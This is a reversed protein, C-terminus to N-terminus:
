LCRKSFKNRGGEKAKYLEDDAIKYLDDFDYSNNAKKSFDVCVLGLSITIVSSASSSKHEIQLNQIDKRVDETILEASECGNTSFVIGFEEGGLRFAFDESRKMSKELTAGIATLVSDGEQHGYTDNYQKFFDVDLMVFSLFSSQRVARKIETEFVDNFHRRNYLGTLQDTISLEEIRKKDTIDHRISTYGVVNGNLDYKSSIISDVWYYNGDKKLNKIEGSWTGEKVIIEWMKIYFDDRMDPHKLINHKKGILEEKSYGSINCFAESAETITGSLDTSSTIVYKDIIDIKQELERQLFYISIHAKIRVLIEETDFPKTIYDVAGLKFGNVKDVSEGKASLFIVPIDKLLEDEKLIRCVEYGDMGPMMIDLLILDPRKKEISKLAMEGSISTRVDYDHEDLIVELLELNVTTDDVVLINAKSM